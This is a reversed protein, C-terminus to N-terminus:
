PHADPSQADDDGELSRPAVAYTPLDDVDAPLPVPYLHMNWETLWQQYWNAHAGTMVVQITDEPEIDVWLPDDSHGYKPM